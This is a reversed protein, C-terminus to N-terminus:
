HPRARRLASLHDEWEDFWEDGVDDVEVEPAPDEFALPPIMERGAFRGLDITDPM